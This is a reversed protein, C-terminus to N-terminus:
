RRRGDGGGIPAGVTADVVRGHRGSLAQALASSPYLRVVLLLMAAPACGLFLWMLGEALSGPAGREAGLVIPSLAGAAWGAIDVAFLPNNSM